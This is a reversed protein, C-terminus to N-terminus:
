LAFINFSLYFFCSIKCNFCINSTMRGWHDHEKAWYCPNQEQIWVLCTQKSDCDYLPHLSPAEGSGVPSLEAPGVSWRHWLFLLIDFTAWVLVHTNIFRYQEMSPHWWKIAFDAGKFVNGFMLCIQFYLNTHMFNMVVSDGCFIIVGRYIIFPLVFLSIYNVYFIVTM